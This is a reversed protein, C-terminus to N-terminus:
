YSKEYGRSKTDHQQGSSERTEQTILCSCDHKTMHIYDTYLSFSKGFIQDPSQFKLLLKFMGDAKNTVADQKLHSKHSSRDRLDLVVNKKLLSRIVQTNTRSVLHLFASIIM